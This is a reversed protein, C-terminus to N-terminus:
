VAGVGLFNIRWCSPSAIELAMARWMRLALCPARNGGALGKSSSRWGSVARGTPPQMMRGGGRNVHTAELMLQPNSMVGAHCRNGSVNLSIAMVAVVYQVEVHREIGSVCVQLATAGVELVCCAKPVVIDGGAECREIVVSM